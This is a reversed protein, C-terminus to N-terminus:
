DEIFSNEIRDKLWRLNSGHQKLRRERKDADKPDGYMEAYILIWEGEKRKTATQQNSNHERIRRKLDSTKGIYIQKTVTHQIIYIYHM